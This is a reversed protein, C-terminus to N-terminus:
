AAKAAKFMKPFMAKVEKLTLVDYKSLAKVLDKCEKINEKVDEAKWAREGKTYYDAKPNLPYHLEIWRQADIPVLNEVEFDDDVGNLCELHHLSMFCYKPKDGTLDIITIGNNNDGLMPNELCDSANDSKDGNFQFPWVSHFYGSDADVSFVAQLARSADQGADYPERLVSHFKDSLSADAFKLARILTQMATKGFLWQHHFGLMIPKANKGDRDAKGKIRVYLQHRQGM